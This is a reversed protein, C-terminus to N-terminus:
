NLAIQLTFSIYNSINRILLIKNSQQKTQKDSLRVSQSVSQYVSLTSQYNGPNSETLDLVRLGQKEGGFCFVFPADPCCCSNLIKGQFCWDVIILGRLVFFV